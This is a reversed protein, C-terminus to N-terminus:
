EQGGDEKNFEIRKAADEIRKKEEQKRADERDREQNQRQGVEATLRNAKDVALLLTKKHYKEVEEITTGDLIVRDGSVRAIGPRHMSTWQPPHNWTEVFIRAWTSSPCCSLQFPVAYLGSGPSGDNKPPEIDEAIVRVVKVPENAQGHVSNSM